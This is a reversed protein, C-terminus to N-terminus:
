VLDHAQLRAEKCTIDIKKKKKKKVKGFYIHTPRAIPFSIGSTIDLKSLRLNKWNAIDNNRIHFRYFPGCKGELPPYFSAIVELPLRVRVTGKYTFIIEGKRACPIHILPVLWKAGSAERPYIYNTFHFLRKLQMSISLQSTMDPSNVRVTAVLFTVTAANIASNIIYLLEVHQSRSECPRESM